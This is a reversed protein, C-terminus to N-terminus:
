FAISAEMTFGNFKGRYRIDAPEFKEFKQEVYELKMMINKILFWGASFTIRDIANSNLFQLKDFQVYGGKVWTEEHHRSSLYMTLNVRIGDDLLADINLNAMALNFGNTLSSLQNVNVGTSTSIVSVAANKHGLAQFDQTFNGGLTVKFGSFPTSDNKTTEFINLGTKNNPRFYPLSSQQANLFSIIIIFFLILLKTKM